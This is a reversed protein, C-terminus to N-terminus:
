ASRRNIQRQLAGQLQIIEALPKPLNHVTNRRMLERRTILEINELRIDARNGNRFAVAHGRPVPGHRRTWLLVHTRKWNVTYPIFGAGSKTSRVDRTKTYQYGDILRTSGIPMWRTGREGKKFWTEAMRGAHWGPRRLGKNAPIHGKQFRYPAGVNDGRRLRCAAPSALYEPTKRLGQVEAKRYVAPISRGILRAVEATPRHPYLARLRTRDAATWRRRRAARPREELQELARALLRAAARLQRLRGAICRWCGLERVAKKRRM